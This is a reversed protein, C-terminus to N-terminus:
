QAIDILEKLVALFDSLERPLKRRVTTTVSPYVANAMQEIAKVYYEDIDSIKGLSSFYSEYLEKLYKVREEQHESNYNRVIDDELSELWNNTLKQLEEVKCSSTFELVLERVLKASSRRKIIAMVLVGAVFSVLSCVVMESQFFAQLLVLIEM